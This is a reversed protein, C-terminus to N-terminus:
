RGAITCYYLVRLQNIMNGNKNAAESKLKNGRLSASDDLQAPLCALLLAETAVGDLLISARPRTYNECDFIYAGM